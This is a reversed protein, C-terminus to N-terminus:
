QVTEEYGKLIKEVKKRVKDQLHVLELVRADAGFSLVWKQVDYWSSTRM